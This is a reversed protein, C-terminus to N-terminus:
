GLRSYIRTLDKKQNPVAREYLFAELDTNRSCSFTSPHSSLRDLNGDREQCRHIPNWLSVIDYGM